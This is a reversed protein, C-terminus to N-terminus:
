QYMTAMWWQGEHSRWHCWAGTGSLMNRDFELNSSFESRELKLYIQGIVFINQVRWSLSVTTVHSFITTIPRTYKVSCHKSNEDFKSNSWFISLPVPAQDIIVLHFGHVYITRSTYQSLYLMPINYKIWYQLVNYLAIEYWVYSICQTVYSLKRLYITLYSDSLDFIITTTINQYVELINELKFWIFLTTSIM